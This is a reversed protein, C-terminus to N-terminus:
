NKVPKKLKRRLTRGLKTTDFPKTFYGDVGECIAQGVDSAMKKATVMFVPVDKTSEDHKLESLVELGDIGPLTWDLLIADPRVSRALELAKHGDEALFVRFGDSELDYKLIDRIHQEDEIVLISIRKSM